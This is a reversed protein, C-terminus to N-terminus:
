GQSYSGRCGDLPYCDIDRSYLATITSEDTLVIESSLSITREFVVLLSAEPIYNIEM